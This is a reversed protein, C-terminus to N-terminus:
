HFLAQLVYKTKSNFNFNMFLASPTPFGGQLVLCSGWHQSDM